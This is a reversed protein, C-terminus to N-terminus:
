RGARTQVLWAKAPVALVGESYFGAYFDILDSRIASRAEPAIELMADSFSFATMAFDAAQEPTSGQGGVSQKGNWPAVEIKNFGAQALLEALRAPDSLSFPGPVSLDPPAIAIHKEAIKRAGSMWPNDEPPAWVAWDLQGGDVLLGRLRAFATTPDAFFMVGLRSIM